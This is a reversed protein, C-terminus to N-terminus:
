KSYNYEDGLDVGAYDHEYYDFCDELDYSLDLYRFLLIAASETFLFCLPPTKTTTSDKQPCWRREWPCDGEGAVAAARRLPLLRHRREPPAVRDAGLKGGKEGKGRKRGGGERKGCERGPPPQNNFFPLAGLPIPSRRHGLAGNIARALRHPPLNALLRCRHMPALKPVRPPM